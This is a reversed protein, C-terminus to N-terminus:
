KHKCTFNYLPNNLCKNQVDNKSEKALVCLSEMMGGGNLFAALYFVRTLCLFTFSLWKICPVSYFAYTFDPHNQRGPRSFGNEHWCVVCWIIATILEDAATNNTWCNAACVKIQCRKLTAHANLVNIIISGGDIM